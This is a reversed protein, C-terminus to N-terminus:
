APVAERIVSLVRGAIDDLDDRADFVAQMGDAERSQEAYDIASKLTAGDPLAALIEARAERAAIVAATRIIKRTNADLGSFSTVGPDTLYGKSAIDDAIQEPTRATM